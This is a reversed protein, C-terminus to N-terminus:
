IFAKCLALSHDVGCSVKLVKATISTKLPFYKDDTHGLGLCGLKNRGWMYVDNDSNIAAMHNIGCAISTVRSEPSMENRGFLTAPIRTPKELYEVKPGLGLIGYGWTFVDGNEPFFVFQFIFHLSVPFSVCFVNPISYLALPSLVVSSETQGKVLHFDRQLYSM